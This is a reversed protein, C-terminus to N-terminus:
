KSCIWSFHPREKSRPCCVRCIWLYSVSSRRRLYLIIVKIGKSMWQKIFSSLVKTFVHCASSLGFRPVNFYFFRIEGDEFAYQFRPYNRHQPVTEMHHYGSKLDFTTFFGNTRIMESLTNVNEYRCIDQNIFKNVNRLDLAMRLKKGEVVTLPNCCYWLQDLEDNCNSNLLKTTVESVFHQNRISSKNFRAPFPTPSSLFPLISSNEIINCLIM